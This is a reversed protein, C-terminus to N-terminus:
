QICEGIDVAMGTGPLRGGRLHKNARKDATTAQKLAHLVQLSMHPRVCHFTWELTVTAALAEGSRVVKILMKTYM